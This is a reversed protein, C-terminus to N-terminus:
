CFLQESWWEWPEPSMPESISEFYQEEPSEEPTVEPPTHIIHMEWPDHYEFPDFEVDLDDPDEYERIISNIVAQAEWTYSIPRQVRVMFHFQYFTTTILLEYKKKKM